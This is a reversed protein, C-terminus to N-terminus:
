PSTETTEIPILLEQGIQIWDPNELDPNAAIIAQVTTGYREPRSRSPAPQRRLPPQSLSPRRPPAHPM